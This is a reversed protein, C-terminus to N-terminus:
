RIMLRRMTVEGQPNLVQVQYLGPTLGDSSLSQGSNIVGSQLTRGQLDKVSYFGETGSISYASGATVPNPFLLISNEDMKANSLGTINIAVHSTYVKRQSDVWAFIPPDDPTPGPVMQFNRSITELIRNQADYSHVNWSGFLTDWRSLADNYEELAFFTPNLQADILQQFRSSNKWIGGSFVETLITQSGFNDYTFTIKQFNVWSGNLNKQLIYSGPVSNDPYGTWQNWQLDIIRSSDVFSTGNWEQLLAGNPIDGATYNFIYKEANIWQTTDWNKLIYSQLRQQADYIFETEFNENVWASDTGSWIRTTRETMKNQSNYTRLDQNGSNRVWVNNTWSESYQEQVIGQEDYVM